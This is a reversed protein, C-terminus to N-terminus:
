GAGVKAAQALAKTLLSGSLPAYYATEASAPACTKLVYNFWSAVATNTTSAATAGLGYSIANILYADAAAVTYDPTVSGDANITAEAYFASTAKSSPAVYNGANNKIAASQISATKREEVYSTETYTIAGNNDKVYNAVGDSGTAAQFSGDTPVATSGGPFATTFSDNAATTWISGVAKNLFNTFNNTTGSTSSRYAVKIATAPLTLTAGSVTDDVSVSGLTTVGVKIAYTADKQYTFSATGKATLAKNYIDTTTTNTGSKTTRAIKVMKGKYTKLAAATGTITFTVKNGSKKASVTVGKKTVKTIAKTTTATNDAVIAPDNWTKIQGAFIKGVTLPSLRVQAGAPTVGDLRYMVSIAGSILPVYVFSFSPAGSTYLSDTGAWVKTQGTFATKGAGSGTPSVYAVTDKNPNALTSRNYQAACIDYMNAPFTAGTGDIATGAFAVTSAVPAVIAAAAIAAGIKMRLKM